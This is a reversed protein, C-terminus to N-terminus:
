TYWRSLKLRPNNDFNLILSQFLTVTFMAPAFSCTLFCTIWSNNFHMRTLWNVVKLTQTLLEDQWTSFTHFTKVYPEQLLYRTGRIVKFNDSKM